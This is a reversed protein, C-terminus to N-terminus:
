SPYGIGDINMTSRSLFSIPQQTIVKITKCDNRLLHLNPFREIKGCKIPIAIFNLEVDNDDPYNITGSVSGAIIWDHHDCVLRYMLIQPRNDKSISSMEHLHYRLAVPEGLLGETQYMLLKANIVIGTDVETKCCLSSLDFPIVRQFSKGCSDHLVVNLSADFNARSDEDKEEHDGIICRFAFNLKDGEIVFSSRLLDNMDGDQHLSIHKPLGINWGKVGFSVPTNCLISINIIVTNSYLPLIQIKELTLVSRELTAVSAELIAIMPVVEVQHVGEIQKEFVDHRYSTTVTAQLTQLMSYDLNDVCDRIDASFDFNESKITAMFKLKENPKCSNFSFRCTEQWDGDDNSDMKLKLGRSCQLKVDGRNIVDAGAHFTLQVTQIHGPILFIPDISIKQTPENPQVNFGYVGIQNQITYDHHFITEKWKFRISSVVFQDVNTAVWPFCFSNKGPCIRVTKETALVFAADSQDVDGHADVLELYRSMTLVILEIRDLFIDGALYSSIVLSATVTEGLKCQQFTINAMINSNMTNRSKKYFIDVGFLPAASWQLDAVDPYGVLTNMDRMIRLKINDPVSNSLRQGLFYMATKFYEVANHHKRQCILLRFVRWALLKDWPDHACHDIALMLNEVSTEIENRCIHVEALDALIRCSYRGRKLFKNLLILSEYIDIVFTQFKEESTYVDRIVSNVIQDNDSLALDSLEFRLRSNKSSKNQVLCEIQEWPVWSHTFSNSIFDEQIFRIESFRLSRIRVFDILDNMIRIIDATIAQMRPSLEAQLSNDRIIPLYFPEIASKVDWCLSLALMESEVILREMKEVNEMSKVIDCRFAYVRKIYRYISNLAGAPDNHHFFISTKRCVIYLLCENYIEELNATNQVLSRFEDSDGVIAAYYIGIDEKMDNVTNGVPLSLELDEYERVAQYHLRMQEFSFSLSEKLLFYRSWRSSYSQIRECRQIENAYKEIRDYFGSLLTKGLQQLVNNFEQNQSPTEELLNNESDLLTSLISTEGREFDRRIKKYIERHEKSLLLVQNSHVEIDQIPEVVVEDDDAEKSQARRAAAVFRGRFGIGVENSMDENPSVDSEVSSPNIPVFIIMYQSSASPGTADKAAAVAKTAADVQLRKNSANKKAGFEKKAANSAASIVDLENGSAAGDIQNVFARIAPRVRERYHDISYCAAIYVHCLPDEHWNVADTVMPATLQTRVPLKEIIDVKNTIPNQYNINELTSEYRQQLVTNFKDFINLHNMRPKEKERNWARRRSPSMATHNPNHIVSTPDIFNILPLRNRKACTISDQNKVDLEERGCLQIKANRLFGVFGARLHRHFLTQNDQNQDLSIQNCPITGSYDDSVMRIINRDFSEMDGNSHVKSELSDSSSSCKIPSHNMQYFDKSEELEGRVVTDVDEFHSCKMPKTTKLVNGVPNQHDHFANTKGFAPIHNSLSKIEEKETEDNDCFSRGDLNLDLRLREREIIKLKTEGKLEKELVSKRQKASSDEDAYELM